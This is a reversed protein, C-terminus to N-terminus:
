GWLMKAKAGATSFRAMEISEVIKPQKKHKLPQTRSIFHPSCSIKWFSGVVFFKDPKGVAM